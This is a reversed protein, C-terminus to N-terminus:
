SDSSIIFCSKTVRCLFDVGSGVLGSEGLGTIRKLTVASDTLFAILFGEHGGLNQWCTAFLMLVRLIDVPHQSGGRRVCFTVNGIVTCHKVDSM